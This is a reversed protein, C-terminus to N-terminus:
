SLLAAGVHDVLATILTLQRRSVSLVDLNGGPVFVSQVVTICDQFVGMM